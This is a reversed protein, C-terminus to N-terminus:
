RIYAVRGGHQEALQGAFAGLSTTSRGPPAKKAGKPKPAKAKPPEGFVCVDIVVQKHRNFYAVDRLIRSTTMPTGDSSTENPMGDTILVITDIDPVQLAYYLASRTSTGGNAKRGNAFALAKAKAPGSAKVIKPQFPHYWQVGGVRMPIAPGSDAKAAKSGSSGAVGSFFALGFRTEKGLSGLFRALEVSVLGMRTYGGAPLPKGGKPPVVAAAMSGSTDVLVLVNRSRVTQDFLTPWVELTRAEVKTTDKPPTFGKRAGTWWERWDKAELHRQGTIRTLITVSQERALDEGKSLGELLKILPEILVKDKLTRAAFLAARRIRPKTKERLALSLTGAPDSGKKQAQRRLAEIALLAERVKRGSVLARLANAAESSEMGALAEVAAHYTKSTPWTKGALLKVVRESDDRSLALLADLAGQSNATKLARTLRKKERKFAKSSLAGEGGQAVGL